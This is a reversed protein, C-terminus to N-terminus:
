RVLQLHILDFQLHLVLLETPDLHLKFRRAVAIHIEVIKGRGAMERQIRVACNQLGIQPDPCQETEVPFLQNPLWERSKNRRTTRVREVPMTLLDQLCARSLGTLHREPFLGANRAPDIELAKSKVM